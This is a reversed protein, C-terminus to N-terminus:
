ASAKKDLEKSFWDYHDRFRTESLTKFEIKDGMDAKFLIPIPPILNRATDEFRIFSLYDALIEKRIRKKLQKKDYDILKSQNIEEILEKVNDYEFRNHLGLTYESLFLVIGFYSRDKFYNWDFAKGKKYEHVDILFNEDKTLQVLLDRILNPYTIGNYDNRDATVFKLDVTRQKIKEILKDIEKEFYPRLQQSHIIANQRFALFLAISYVVVSIIGIIPSLVNNFNTSDFRLNLRNWFFIGTLIDVTVLIVALGLLGIILKNYRM